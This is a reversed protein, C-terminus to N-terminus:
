DTCFDISALREKIGCEAYKGADAADHRFLDGNTIVGCPRKEQPNNLVVLRKIQLDHMYKAASQVDDSKYCYFINKTQIQEVKTSNPDLGRAVARVLIDRDTVVGELEDKDPNGLPLFGYDMEEMKKAAQTLSTDMPIYDVNKTMLEKVLM